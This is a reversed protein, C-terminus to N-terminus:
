KEEVMGERDTVNSRNPYQNMDEAQTWRVLSRHIVSIMM